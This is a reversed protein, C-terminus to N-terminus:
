TGEFARVPSGAGGGLGETCVPSQLFLPMKGSGPNMQCFGAGFALRYLYPMSPVAV